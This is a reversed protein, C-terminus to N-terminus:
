PKEWITHASREYRLSIQMETEVTVPYDHTGDIWIKHHEIWTGCVNCWARKEEWNIMLSNM